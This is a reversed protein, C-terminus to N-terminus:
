ASLTSPVSVGTAPSGSDNRSSNARGAGRSWRSSWQVKWSSTLLSNPKRTTSPSTQIEYVADCQRAHNAGPDALNPSEQPPAEFRRVLRHRRLYSDGLLHVSPEPLQTLAENLWRAQDDDNEIPRDQISAGPEGLPDIAYPTRLAGALASQRGVDTLGGGPRALIKIDQWLSWHEIYFNDFCVRDEIPTAGRLDHVQALGTVGAPVRLRETYGPYTRAFRRALHQQEPRPGVLSMQGRLVNWLQPLEDLSSRRLFRGAPGIRDPSVV